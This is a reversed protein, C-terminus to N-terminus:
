WAYRRGHLLVDAYIDAGFLLDIRGPTGFDPDTLSLNSIHNWNSGNYVPQLPLDCTVRPVVTATM